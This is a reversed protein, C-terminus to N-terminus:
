TLFYAVVVLGVLFLVDVYDGLFDILIEKTESDAQRNQRARDEQKNM